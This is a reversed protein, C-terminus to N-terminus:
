RERNSSLPLVALPIHQQGAHLDRDGLSGQVVPRPFSAKIVRIDPLRYLRVCAPDIRYAAAVAEGSLVRAAQEYDADDALFVDITMWYPGANKSRVLRALDGLTPDAM